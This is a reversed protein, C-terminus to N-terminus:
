IGKALVAQLIHYHDDFMGAREINGIRVWEAEAADDGAVVAPLDGNSDPEVEFVSVHTIIRGRMSREPADFVKQGLLTSWVKQLDLGTEELLERKTGAAITESPDLFGGPIAWLGAGPANKRQVLLVSGRCLVVADTCVFNVPYPTNAWARNYDKIFELRSVLEGHWDTSQGDALLDSVNAPVPLTDFNLNFEYWDKRIDTANIVKTCEVPTFGFQPFTQLYYSSKDKEYGVLTVKPTLSLAGGTSRRIQHIAMDLSDVVNLQWSEECYLEDHMPQFFVRADNDLSKAIMERREEYTFPNKLSRPEDASGILIVVFEGHELAKLVTGMHGNHFPQFRGIFLAIDHPYTTPTTM